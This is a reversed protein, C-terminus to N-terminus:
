VIDKFLSCRRISDIKIHGYGRIEEPQKALAVIKDYNNTIAYFHKIQHMWEDIQEIYIDRIKREIKREYSYGLPDFKTGRLKKGHKLYKFLTKTQGPLRTKGKSKRQWPLSMHFNVGKIEFFDNNFGDLTKDWLRAVEYEDKYAMLKYLNKMVAESLETKNMASDFAKVKIVIDKYKQAYKEDQYEKLLTTRHYFQSGFDKHILTHRSSIKGDILNKSNTIAIHRGIKWAEKNADVMTGNAEIAQMMATERLPLLGKEYAYGLMLMNVMLSYGTLKKAYESANFMHLEKSHEKLLEEAKDVDFKWNRNEIYEGTNSPKSNLLTVTDEGVYRMVDASTSVQPDAGIVLDATGPYMKGYAGKGFSLMSTVAGYKQALGTQDTAVIKMGDIHAAVSLMQSMSIIGTGGIGALLINYREGTKFKWTGLNSGKDFEPLEVNIMPKSVRKGKVTIFSPCYGKLCDYSYNCSDQDVQRKQGLKTEVPVISLCNSQTSCDGCDECVEPNIWVRESPAEQINRKIERRRETACQQEYILVTIGKVKTLATQVETFKEKPYVKVEKPIKFKWKNPNVSVLSVDKAGEALVQQCIMPITLEGDVKQGGTMAVADNFLIKYTMNADSALAQRIALIGSHFYTGDGLNAFIHDATNWEHQGIWNMGESGMPALTVTPRSPILQAIYHCGIGILAKSGEPLATSTNHPCGSCYYPHREELSPITDYNNNFEIKLLKFIARAIDYGDFDLCPSLLDKGHIIPTSTHGYLLKYLQDEVLSTKEEVVLIEAPSDYPLRKPQAHEFCFNRIKDEELPSAVGIKLISIGHEEPIINYRQLATLVDVYSKGVAIIGLKKEPANHTVENFNNHKLFEQVAPLKINYIRNEADEDEPWRANVDFEKKPIIPKWADLNVEATQYADAVNTIIKMCVFLGSYRSMQIGLLGLRMVDEVTAPTIVPIQWSAFQPGTEHPITSSKNAHDDGAFALVGGHKSTGFFSSHKFQDGSRDVGPGKGYWFGFVGDVKPPSIIGLQQTGQVAAVALDENVAARFKIQNSALLTMQAMFEKDLGGLPSGRYGTVYGATKLGAREDIEKQLLSLKVIAQIGSLVFKGNSSTYKDNLNFTM